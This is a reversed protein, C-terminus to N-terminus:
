SLPNLSSYSTVIANAIEKENSYNEPNVELDISENRFWTRQRKAYQRTRIVINEEMDERTMKGDLHQLIQRYGISDLAHVKERGYTKELSKTEEIWGSELMTRTRERIRKELIKSPASIFVAFVNLLPKSSDKQKQFHVTPPEGTSEFIEFARVLRKRDNPHVIDAYDPDIEKLRELLHKPGYKDFEKEWKARIELNSVSGEFIGKTLARFYLGAGGCIVPTKSKGQIENVADLVMEAYGGASVPETPERVGILHHPIGQRDQESPQATGIPMDKYIQRSDLSIIEGELKKALEVAIATKGSATPGLITIVPKQNM